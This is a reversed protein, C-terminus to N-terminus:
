FFAPVFDNENVISASDGTAKIVYLKKNEAYRESEEDAKLFAVAGIIKHNKYESMWTKIRKLRQIHEDVSKVKLTTKVEVVVIEDGNHAIIDFEYHENEYRGKVRTSTRNVKIGRQRLINILDGEVLSEILKGWQSEFLQFARKIQHDTEKFKKDTEIFRQDTEQFKKDTEKFQRNTEQQALTLEKMLKKIESIETPMNFYNYQPM